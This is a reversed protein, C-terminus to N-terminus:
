YTGRAKARDGLVAHYNGKLCKDECLRPDADVTDVYFIRGLTVRCLLLYRAGNKAPRTYEDSKSSNEALYIGRGYLTGAHSGALNVRFENTTIAESADASTGHFLFVENVSKDLPAFDGM